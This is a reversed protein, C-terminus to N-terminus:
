CSARGIQQPVGPFDQLLGREGEGVDLALVAVLELVDVDIMVSAVDAVRVGGATRTQSARSTRQHRDVPRRVPLEVVALSRADDYRPGPRGIGRRDDLPRVPDRIEE